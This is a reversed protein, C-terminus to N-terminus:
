GGQTPKFCGAKYHHTRTRAHMCTQVLSVAEQQELLPLTCYMRAPACRHLPLASLSCSCFQSLWGSWHVMRVVPSCGSRLHLLLSSSTSEQNAVLCALFARRVFTTPHTHKSICARVRALGICRAMQFAWGPHAHTLTHTKRRHPTMSLM